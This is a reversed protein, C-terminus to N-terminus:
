CSHPKQMTTIIRTGSKIYINLTCEIDKLSTNIILDFPKDKGRRGRDVTISNLNRHGLSMWKVVAIKIPGGLNGALGHATSIM